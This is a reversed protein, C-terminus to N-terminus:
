RGGPNMKREVPSPSAKALDGFFFSSGLMAGGILVSLAVQLLERPPGIFITVLMLVGGARLVNRALAQNRVSLRVAALALGGSLMYLLWKWSGGRDTADAFLPVAWVAIGVAAVGAFAAIIDATARNKKQEM